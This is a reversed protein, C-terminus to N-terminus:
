RTKSFDHLKIEDWSVISNRDEKSFLVSETKGPSIKIVKQNSSLNKPKMVTVIGSVYETSANYVTVELYISTETVKEIQVYGDAVKLKPYERPSSSSCLLLTSVIAALVIRLLKM